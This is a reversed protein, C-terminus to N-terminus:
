SRVRSQHEQRRSLLGPKCGHAPCGLNLTMAAGRCLQGSWEAEKNSVKHTALAEGAPQSSDAQGASCWRPDTMHWYAESIKPTSVQSTPPMCDRPAEINALPIIAASSDELQGVSAMM